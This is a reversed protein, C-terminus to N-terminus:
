RLARQSEPEDLEQRTWPQEARQQSSALGHAVPQRGRQLRANRRSRDRGCAGRSHFVGPADDQELTADLRAERGPDIRGGDAHEITEADRDLPRGALLATARKAVVQAVRFACEFLRSAVHVGAARREVGAGFGDHTGRAGAPQHHLVIPSEQAAVRVIRRPRPADATRRAVQRFEDLWVVEHTGSEDAAASRADRPLRRARQLVPLADAAADFRQELRGAARTTGVRSPVSQQPDAPVYENSCGSSDPSSRRRLIEASISPDGCAITVAFM